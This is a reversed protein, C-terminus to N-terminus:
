EIEALGDVTPKWDPELAEDVIVRALRPPKEPVTAMECDTVGEVPRVTEQPGVLTEKVEPPEEVEVQVNVEDVWPVYATVKVAVLPGSDWVVVIVTPTPLKVIEALGVVSVTWAPLESVEDMVRVLKAPKAPVTLREVDTMGPPRVAETLGALTVRLGPAVPVEVSVTLEVVEPVKMTVTVPVMPEREVGTCTVTLTTSKETDELEDDSVMSAPEEPVEEIWNPLRLPNAPMTNSEAEANGEPGLADRPGDEIARLEPPDPLEVRM